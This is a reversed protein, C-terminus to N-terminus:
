FSKIKLDDLFRKAGRKKISNELMMAESRSDLISTYVITWPVGRALFKTKGHNHEALRRELNITHGTYYRSIKSSYLIYTTYMIHLLPL